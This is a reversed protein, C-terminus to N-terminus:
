RTKIFFTWSKTATNGAADSVRVTVHVPGGSYDVGPVYQIFRNTRVSSSTVDHGNVEISASSPNIEATDSSFTAYVSPRTNNVVAGNAPAFDTIGPADTSVWVTAVSAGIPADAGRVNLHGFVPAGPINVGRPVAYTGTYIGPSSETMSVNRVYPGIDYSALGGPTGRMTVTLTEGQRLARQPSFDISSIAVGTSPAPTGTSARTAVIQLPESSDINYRVMVRDGVHIQDISAVAGNLTIVTTRSPSIVHGDDLVLQGSGAAAVTGTRSGYADILRKVAGSRDLYAHAYDGAHVESLDGPNSTGTDVDQVVIETNPSIQLTRVSANYTLTITPPDSDLDVATITGLQEVSGGMTVMGSGSRGVITSIIEVSNTQRDFTAQSDLAETFFRLPAYLVNKIEVPPADLTVPRDDIQATTSGITLVITKAGAYTRVAKGHIEFDLGLAEIIRRVPVLLHDKYFRPPPDVALKTGNIVIAIPLVPKGAHKAPKHASAGTAIALCLMAAALRGIM